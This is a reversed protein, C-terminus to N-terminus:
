PLAGVTAGNIGAGLAPSHPLLSFDGANPNKFLPDIVQFSNEDPWESFFTLFTFSEESSHFPKPNTGNVWINNSFDVKSHSDIVFYMLYSPNIIDYTPFRLANQDFINNHVHAGSCGNELTIAASNTDYVTNNLWYGGSLNGNCDFGNFIKGNASKGLHYILDFSHIQPVGVTSTSNGGAQVGQGYSHHIRNHDEMGGATATFILNGQNNVMENGTVRGGNNLLTDGSAYAGITNYVIGPANITSVYNNQVVINNETGGGDIGSAIIGGQYMQAPAGLYCDMTGVNNGGIYNGRVLHPNYTGDTRILIGAEELNSHDQLPLNDTAISGYNWIRNNVFRNYEGVFYKGLDSPFPISAIGSHQVHEVALGSVTVHNVGELLVGYPRRTGQFTHQNPDSGDPLNVYITTGTAYWSGPTAEVNQLGDNTMSFMQSTNGSSRAVNVWTVVNSPDIGASPAVPGRVYLSGQDTIADYPQYKKSSSYEGTMNPVPLLQISTTLPSDMYLKAPLKGSIRAEYTTGSVRVWTLSLPDAGDIIPPTGGEGYAGITIPAASSGSCKPPNSALTTTKSTITLNLCKIYDDRFVDGNRLLVSDGPALSAMVTNLKTITRWPASPSTGINSDNGSNSVYYTAAVPSQANAVTMLTTALCFLVLALIESITRTRLVKCV